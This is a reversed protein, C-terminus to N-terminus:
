TKTSVAADASGIKMRNLLLDSYSVSILADKLIGFLQLYKECQELLKEKDTVEDSGIAEIEVFTGLDRVTDIHFKVNEIFYIERQKDVVVLTKLSKLLIEKLSSGPDSKFLIIDSRKPGKGDERQYFILHNEITGERLKLRGRNVVFYTDIQHDIGRFDAHCSALILRIKEHDDYKAKVEINFHKM